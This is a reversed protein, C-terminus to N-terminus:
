KLCAGLDRGFFAGGPGLSRGAWPPAAFAAAVQPLTARWGFEILIGLIGVLLLSKMRIDREQKDM